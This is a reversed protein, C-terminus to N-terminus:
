FPIEDSQINQFGALDDEQVAAPAAGGVPKSDCFYHENIVIDTTYHKVGDKEYSGTQIRGRVAIKQGKHLYNKVFEATKGFCVCRLFDTLKEGDKNPPRDVALTYKAVSTGTPSSAFEPDATLRGMLAVVNM